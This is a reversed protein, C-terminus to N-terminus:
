EKAGDKSESKLADAVKNRFADDKLIKDLLEEMVDRGDARSKLDVLKARTELLKALAPVQKAVAAPSFDNISNFQLNVKLNSDGGELLNAVELKLEPSIGKLVDDFNDKDIPTFPRERLRKDRKKDGALDALV